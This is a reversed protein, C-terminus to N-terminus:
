TSTGGLYDCRNYHLISLDRFRFVAYSLIGHFGALGQDGDDHRDVVDLAEKPLAKLADGILREGSDLHDADIVPRGVTRGRDDVLECLAIRSEDGDVLFVAAVALPDVRSEIAGSTDIDSDDFGVIEDIEVHEADQVSRRFFVAHRVDNFRRVPTDAVGVSGLLFANGSEVVVVDRVDIRGEREVLIGLEEEVVGADPGGDVLSGEQFLMADPHHLHGTGCPDVVGEKDFREGM